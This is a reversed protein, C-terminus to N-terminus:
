SACRKAPTKGVGLAPLSRAALLSARVRCSRTAYQFKLLGEYCSKVYPNGCAAGIAAHFLKNTESIAAADRAMADSFEKCRATIAALQQGTRREAAWRTVIPQALELAELIQPVKVDPSAVRPGQSPLLEVLGEAFWNPLLLAQSSILSM